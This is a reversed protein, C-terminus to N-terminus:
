REFGVASLIVGLKRHDGAVSFTRDASITVTPSDSAAAVPESTLTYTGPAAFTKDAVQVADVTVTIRRAPSQSPIHLAVHLPLATSPRRLLLVARDGMWRWQGGELEYIGSVIQQAAEPASMPLYSLSPKREVVLDARVRDVPSTSFDFPRFGLSASSYASHAGLGVLRLPLLPRIDREKVPVLVGGGTTFRIPFALESSVVMGGPQVAQGRMLPLGGDAEFYFRLGWEGNIWVRRTETEHRLERAFTRYGDWHQFNVASLSLGLALQAVFAAALWRPRGALTRSALLVVPAAMPLLYRASGAFFLALASTFFLVVWAALFREEMSASRLHAVGWAIVLVGAGFSAWFLPHPELFAAGAAAALAAIWATRGARRFAFLALLPFVIWASHATLAVASRLKPILAQFGYTQFYGGLVAVPIEGTSAREWIQWIVLTAPSALVAAWAPRWNRANWWLFLALIPVMVVSQYAALAALVMAGVAALLRLPSRTEVAGVFLAISAMWFALFPIDSELSNGNVVFAPTALFLLTATLPRLSFRRALSWMALAAIITFLIYAAHFRVESIDGFVALLGALLWANLPPHPHGRMDVVDGLYAYRAHNPHLPDIQAHQAGALYYVDDGQIAQNLFPLRILLAVALIFLLPRTM